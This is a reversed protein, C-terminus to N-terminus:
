NARWTHLIFKSKKLGSCHKMKYHNLQVILQMKENNNIQKIIKTMSNERSKLTPKAGNKAYIM